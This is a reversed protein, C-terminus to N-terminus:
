YGNEGCIKKSTTTCKKEKSIFSDPGVCGSRGGSKTNLRPPPIVRKGVRLGDIIGEGTGDRVGLTPSPVPALFTRGM